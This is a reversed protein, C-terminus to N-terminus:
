RVAVDGKRVDEKMQLLETRIKRLESIAEDITERSLGHTQSEDTSPLPQASQFLPLSNDASPEQQRTTTAEGAARDKNNREARLEACAGEITFGRDRVLHKIKRILDIDCQRYRRIGKGDRQPRLMPFAKEWFRLLSTNVDFMEAVEAISYFLKM